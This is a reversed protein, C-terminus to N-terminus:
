GPPSNVRHTSMVSEGPLASFRGWIVVVGIAILLTM